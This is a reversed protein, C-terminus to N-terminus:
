GHPAGLQRHSEEFHGSTAPLWCTLAQGRRCVQAVGRGGPVCCLPRLLGSKERGNVPCMILMKNLYDCSYTDTQSDSYTNLIKNAPTEGQFMKKIRM